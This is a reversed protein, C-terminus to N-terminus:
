ADRPRWPSHRPGEARPRRLKDPKPGFDGAGSQAAEITAVKTIVDALPSFHIWAFVRAERFFAQQDAAFLPEEALQPMGAGSLLGVVRELDRSSLGAVLVGGVQGFSLLLKPAPSDTDGPEEAAPQGFDLPLSTFETDRIKV